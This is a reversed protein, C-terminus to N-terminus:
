IVPMGLVRPHNVLSNPKRNLIYKIPNNQDVDKFRVGRNSSKHKEYSETGGVYHFLKSDKIDFSISLRTQRIQHQFRSEFHLTPPTNCACSKTDITTILDDTSNKLREEVMTMSGNKRRRTRLPRTSHYSHVNSFAIMDHSTLNTTPNNGHFRNTANNSAAYTIMSSILLSLSMGYVLVCGGIVKFM